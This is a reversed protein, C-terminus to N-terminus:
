KLIMMKFIIFEIALMQFQNENVILKEFSIIVNRCKRLEIEKLSIVIDRMQSKMKELMFTIISQM